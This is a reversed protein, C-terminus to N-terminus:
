SRDRICMENGFLTDPIKVTVSGDDNVPYAGELITPTENLAGHFGTFMSEQVTVHVAEADAFTSTATVNNLQVTIDGTFGGLLTTSLKKAEDMTSLGYLGDYNTSTSVPQITGSM